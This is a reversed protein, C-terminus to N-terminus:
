MSASTQRSSKRRPVLETVSVDGAAREIYYRIQAGTTSRFLVVIQQEDSSVIEQHVPYEGAEVISELDPNSSCCYYRYVFVAKWGNVAKRGIGACARIPRFAALIGCGNGGFNSGDVTASIHVASAYADARWM